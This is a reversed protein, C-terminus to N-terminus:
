ILSSLVFTRKSLLKHLHRIIKRPNGDKVVSILLRLHVVDFKGQLELPPETLLNSTDFELQKPLWAKPPFLDPSIDYGKLSLNLEKM